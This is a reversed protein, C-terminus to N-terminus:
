TFTRSLVTSDLRLLDLMSVAFDVRAFSQLSMLSESHAVELVLFLFDPHACSRLPPLSGFEVHESVSSPADPCATGSLLSSSDSRVHQRLFMFSGLRTMALVLAASGIRASSQPSTIFDLQVADLASSSSDM